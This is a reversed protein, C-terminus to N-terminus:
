ASKEILAKLYEVGPELRCCANLCDLPMPHKFMASTALSVAHAHHQTERAIFDGYVGLSGQANM